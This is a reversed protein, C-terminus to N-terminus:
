NHWENIELTFYLKWVADTWDPQKSDKNKNLEAMKSELIFDRNKLRHVFIQRIRWTMKSFVFWNENLNQMLRWHLCVYSREVKKLELMICKPWFCCLQSSFKQSKQTSPDVNALSKMGSKFQCTLDEEFKADNKITM